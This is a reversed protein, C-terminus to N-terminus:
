MMYQQQWTIAGKTQKRVLNYWFIIYLTFELGGALLNVSPKINFQKKLQKSQEGFGTLLLVTNLELM